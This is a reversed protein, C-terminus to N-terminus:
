EPIASLDVIETQVESLMGTRCAAYRYGPIDSGEWFGCPQVKGDRVARVPPGLLIRFASMGLALGEGLAKMYSEKLTWYRFFLGDREAEGCAAITEYELSDFTHRPLKLDVPRIREIDCGIEGDSVALMVQEGSHSLNFFFANEDSLYPKGNKGYTFAPEADPRGYERLARRLLAEAGVSLMRDKPFRYRDTKERREKSTREYYWGYIRPDALPGVGAIYIRTQM